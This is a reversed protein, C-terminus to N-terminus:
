NDSWLKGQAALPGEPEEDSSLTPLILGSGRGSLRGPNVAGFSGCTPLRVSLISDVELGTTEAVNEEARDRNAHHSVHYDVVPWAM